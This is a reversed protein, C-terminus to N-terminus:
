KKRWTTEKELIVPSTDIDIFKNYNRGKMIYVGKALTENLWDLQFSDIPNVNPLIKGQFYLHDTTLDNWVLPNPEDIFTQNIINGYMNQDQTIKEIESAIPKEKVIMFKNHSVRNIKLKSKFGYGDLNTGGDNEIKIWFVNLNTIDSLVISNLAENLLVNRPKQPTYKLMNKQYQEEKNQKWMEFPMKVLQMLGFGSVLGSFGGISRDITMGLGGILANELFSPIQEQGGKIGSNYGINLNRIYDNYATSTLGNNVSLNISYFENIREKEFYFKFKAGDQSIIRTGYLKFGNNSLKIVDLKIKVLEGYSFYYNFHLDLHNKLNIQFYKSLDFDFDSIINNDTDFIKPVSLWYNVDPDSIIDDIEKLVGNKGYKALNGIFTIEAESNPFYWTDDEYKTGSVALDNLLEDITGYNNDVFSGLKEPNSVTSNYALFNSGNMFFSGKNTLEIKRLAGGGTTSKNKITTIRDVFVDIKTNVVLDTETTEIEKNDYGSCLNPHYINIDLEYNNAREKYVMGLFKNDYFLDYNSVVPDITLSLNVYPMKDFQKNTVYCFYWERNPIINTVNVLFIQEGQYKDCKILVNNFTQEISNFEVDHVCSMNEKLDEETIIAQIDEQSFYIQEQPMWESTKTKISKYKIQM